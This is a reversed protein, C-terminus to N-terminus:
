LEVSQLFSPITVQFGPHNADLIQKLSEAHLLEAHVLFVNKLGHISNIYHALFTQDAHASLENM